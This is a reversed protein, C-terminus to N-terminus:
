VVDMEFTLRTSKPSQLGGCGGFDVAQALGLRNLMEAEKAAGTARYFRRGKDEVPTMTIPELVQRFVSNARTSDQKLLDDLQQLRARIEAPSARLPSVTPRDTLARLRTHLTDRRGERDQLLAATTKGMVGQAIAGEINRLEAEVHALEAEVARRTEGQVARVADLYPDRQGVARAPAM